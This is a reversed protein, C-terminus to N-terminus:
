EWTLAAHAPSRGRTLVCALVRVRSQLSLRGKGQGPGRWRSCRREEGLEGAAANLREGGRGGRGGSRGGGV